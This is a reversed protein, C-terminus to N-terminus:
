QVKGFEFLHSPRPDLANGNQDRDPYKPFFIYGDFPALIEKDGFVGLSHGKKYFTGNVHGPHLRMSADTFKYAHEIKILEMKPAQNALKHWDSEENRDVFELLKKITTYALEESKINYGKQSLELTFAHINHKFAYATGTMTETKLEYDDVNIALPAAAIAKALQINKESSRIVYFPSKTPGITQHLDVFISHSTVLRAIENARKADPTSLDTKGFIRNMDEKVFRKNIKIAEVNGLAFTLKGGFQIRGRKIDDVIRLVAPISGVEDGHTASCIFLSRNHQNSSFSISYPVPGPDSSARDSFAELLDKTIEEVIVV